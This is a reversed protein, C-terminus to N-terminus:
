VEFFVATAGTGNQTNLNAGKDILMDAMALGGKFCVGMLATNGSADQANIDAGNELLRVSMIEENNSQEREKILAQIRAVREKM